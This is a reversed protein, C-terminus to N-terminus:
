NGLTRIYTLSTFQLFLVPQFLLFSSPPAPSYAALPPSFPEFSLVHCGRVPLARLPYCRSELTYVLTCLTDLPPAGARVSPSILWHWLSPLTPGAAFGARPICSFCLTAVVLPTTPFAHLEVPPTQPPPAFAGYNNCSLLYRYINLWFSIPACLWPPAPLPEPPLAVLTM